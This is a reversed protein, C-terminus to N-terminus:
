KARQNSLGGVKVEGTRSRNSKDSSPNPERAIVRKLLQRAYQLKSKSKVDHYIKHPHVEDISKLLSNLQAELRRTPQPQLAYCKM